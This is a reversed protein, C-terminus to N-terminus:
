APSSSLGGAPVSIAVEVPLAETAKGVVQAVLADSIKKNADAIVRGGALIAEDLERRRQAGAEMAKVIGEAQAALSAAMAAVTQPQLSPTEVIDAIQPVLQAGAAAYAQMWENSAEAVAANMKAADHTQMLMRWQLITAKMTPVTIVLLESIRSAVAVDLSRMNRVSPSTSWAVFLRGKYEAIKIALNEAFQGIAAKEEGKRDGLTAEGVVISEMEKVALGHILEMVGVAYIVQLIENENERYLEDYYGVNKLLEHQRERLTKAVKDLQSEISLVDEMLLEVLTKAQGWLRGLGGKWKEYKERVKPDSVDYKTRITRMEKNLDRMLSTLEPIAVPRVEHLLREVLSNVGELASNGYTMFVQTNKRMAAYLEVAEAQARTLTDGQLLSSCSLQQRQVQSTAVTALGQNAPTDIPPAVILPTGEVVKPFAVQIDTM